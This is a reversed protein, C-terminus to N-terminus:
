GQRRTPPREDLSAAIAGRDEAWARRPVIRRGTTEGFAADVPRGERPSIPNQADARTGPAAQPIARSVAEGAAAPGTEPAAEHVPGIRRTRAATLVQATQFLRRARRAGIADIVYLGITAPPTTAPPGIAAPNRGLTAESPRFSARDSALAVDRDRCAVSGVGGGCAAGQVPALTPEPPRDPTHMLGAPGAADALNAEFSRVAMRRMWEPDAGASFGHGSGALVGARGGPDGGLRRLAAAPEAIPADDFADRRDPRDPTPTAVGRADVTEPFAGDM